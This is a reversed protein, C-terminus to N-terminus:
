GVTEQNVLHKKLDNEKMSLYMEALTFDEESDIDIGHRQSMPFAYCTMKSSYFTQHKLFLDVQTFYIAGNLHYFGDLDQSRCAIVSQNSQNIFPQLSYSKDLRMFWSAPIDSQSVSILSQANKFKFFQIAKEIDEARRLPSTPQLFLLHDYIRGLTALKELTYQIAKFAPSDDKALHSPRLFPVEAGYMESIDAIERSDTSVIVDMEINANLAANITWAILPKGFLIKINKQPVRKSGARAPILALIKM